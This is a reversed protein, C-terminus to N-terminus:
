PKMLDSEAPFWGAKGLSGPTPHGLRAELWPALRALAPGKLGSEIGLGDLLYVLDESAINGTAGPAFPCGGIGGASADLVTVGSLLAAHANAIGMNRTDHFHARWVMGAVAARAGDFMEAVQGPTGAGITDALGIEDPAMGAVAKVIALVQERPVLGEFPCGFAAAVLVNCRRGAEKGVVAVRQWAAITDAVSRGQNRLSFTESAVVVYTLEHCGAAVAREAGRANLVLGSFSVGDHRQHLGSMVAEADAMQPVRRPDVFSTAEIRKAGAAVLKDILALKDQTSVAAPENQLGDRPSVEVIEIRKPLPCAAPTM